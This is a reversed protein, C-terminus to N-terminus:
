IFLFQAGKNKIPNNFNYKILIALDYKHDKRHMKEFSYAYKKTINILRNYNNSNTDNCWGMNKKIIKTNLKTKIKGIRDFRYYLTGLSFIGKPTINDGEMNKKKIGGKGVSCKLKFQNITIINKNLKVIM